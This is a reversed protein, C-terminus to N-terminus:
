ERTITTSQLHKQNTRHLQNQIKKSHQRRLKRPPKEMNTPRLQLHPRKRINNRRLRIRIRPRHIRLRSPKNRQLRIGFIQNASKRLHYKPTLKILAPRRYDGLSLCNSNGALKLVHLRIPLNWLM